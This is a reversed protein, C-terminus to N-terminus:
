AAASGEDATEVTVLNDVSGALQEAATLLKSLQALYATMLRSRHRLRRAHPTSSGGVRVADERWTTALRNFTEMREILHVVIEEQPRRAAATRWATRSM